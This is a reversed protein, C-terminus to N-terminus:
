YGYSRGYGKKSKSLKKNEEQLKTIEERLECNVKYTNDGYTLMKKNEEQLKTIEEKYQKILFEIKNALEQKEKELNEQGKILMEIQNDKIIIEKKLDDNAQICYPCDYNLCPKSAEITGIFRDKFIDM